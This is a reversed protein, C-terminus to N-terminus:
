VSNLQSSLETVSDANPLSALSHQLSPRQSSGKDSSVSPYRERGLPREPTGENEIWFQLNAAAQEKIPGCEPYLEVFTTFLPMCIVEFFGKQNKGACRATPSADSLGPPGGM